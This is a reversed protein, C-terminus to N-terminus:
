KRKSLVERRPIGLSWGSSRCFSLNLFVEMASWNGWHTTAKSTHRAQTGLGSSLCQFIPSTLSSVATKVGCRTMRTVTAPFVQTQVPTIWGAHASTAALLPGVGTRWTRVTVHCWGLTPLCQITVSTSSSSSVTTPCERWVQWSLWVRGLTRWTVHTLVKGRMDTWWLEPKGTTVSSQWALVLRTMWTVFCLSHLWAGQATLTSSTIEM